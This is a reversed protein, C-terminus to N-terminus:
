SQISITENFENFAGKLIKTFFKAYYLMTNSVKDFVM